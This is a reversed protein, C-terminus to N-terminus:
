QSAQQVQDRALVVTVRASDSDPVLAGSRFGASGGPALTQLEATFQWRKLERGDKDRVIALLLPARRPSRSMNTVLGQVVLIPTAMDDTYQTAQVDMLGYIEDYVDVPPD